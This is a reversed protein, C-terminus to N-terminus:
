ELTEGGQGEWRDCISHPKVSFGMSGCRSPRFQTKGPVAHAPPQFHNCNICRPPNLEFGAADRKGKHKGAM